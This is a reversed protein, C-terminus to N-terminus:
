SGWGRSWRRSHKDEIKLETQQANPATAASGQQYCQTKLPADTNFLEPVPGRPPTSRQSCVVGCECGREKETDRKM